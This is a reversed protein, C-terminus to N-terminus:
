PLDHVALRCLTWCLQVLLAFLRRSIVFDTEGERWVGKGQRFPALPAM